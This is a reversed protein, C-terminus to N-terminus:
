KVYPKVEMYAVIANGNYAWFSSNWTEWHVKGDKRQVFYKGYKKPHTNKDDWDFPIWGNGTVELIDKIASEFNYNPPTNLSLGNPFYKCLIDRINNEIAAM